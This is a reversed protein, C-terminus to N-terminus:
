PAPPYTKYPHNSPLNATLGWKYALYGQVKQRNLNDLISSFIIFEAISAQIHRNGVSDFIDAGLCFQKGGSASASITQNAIFWGSAPTIGAQFNNYNTLSSVNSGNIQAATANGGFNCNTASGANIGFGFGCNIDSAVGKNANPSIRASYYQRNETLSGTFQAVLYYEIADYSNSITLLFDNSGDFSLVNKGNQNSTLLTPRYTATEQTAHRNNGSKDNWQSVANSSQTITSADSADLWLATTILSPDWNIKQTGTITWSM